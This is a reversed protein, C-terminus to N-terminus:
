LGKNLLYNLREEEGIIYLYGILAEFGTSANYEAVTASKSRTGKKANRARKYVAIEEESLLPMIEQIFKAQSSAKVEEISKKNLEGAKMDSTFVLRERIFLSFVADGVFALAIPNVNKARNKELKDELKFM